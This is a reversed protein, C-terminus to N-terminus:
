IRVNKDHAKEELEMAQVLKELIQKFVRAAHLSPIQIRLVCEMPIAEPPGATSRMGIEGVTLPDKSIFLCLTKKGDSEDVLLFSHGEVISFDIHHKATVQFTNSSM